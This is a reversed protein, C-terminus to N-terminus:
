QAQELERLQQNYNELAARRRRLRQEQQRSRNQLRESEAVLAGYRAIQALLFRRAPERNPRPAEPAVEAPAEVVPAPAQRIPDDMIWHGFEPPQRLRFGVGQPHVEAGAIGVEVQLMEDLSKKAKAKPPPKKIHENVVRALEYAHRAGFDVLASIRANDVPPNGDFIRGCFEFPNKEAYEVMGLFSRDQAQVAQDKINALWGCWGDIQKGDMSTPFVRYEITGLDALRLLNQASYKGRYNWAYKIKGNGIQGCLYDLAATADGTDFSALCFLSGNRGPPMADLVIPEVITWGIVAGVVDSWTNDLYNHHIHTSSRYSPNFICRNRELVTKLEDVSPIVDKRFIPKSVYEMGQRLSGDEHAQFVKTIGGGFLNQGETEIEIGFEGKVPKRNFTDRVTKTMEESFM